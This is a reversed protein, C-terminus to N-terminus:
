RENNEKGGEFEALASEFDRLETGDCQIFRKVKKAAEVLRRVPAAPTWEDTLVSRRLKGRADMINFWETKM